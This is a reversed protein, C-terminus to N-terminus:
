LPLRMRLIERGEYGGAPVFFDRLASPTFAFVEDTLYFNGPRAFKQGLHFISNLSDAVLMGTEGKVRYVTNGIHLVIRYSVMANFGSEEISFVKRGLIMKFCSLVAECRRGDFPFLVIAGYDTWMWVRGGAPSISREVHRLFPEIPNSLNADGFVKKSEKLNDLEIFMFCFTYEQGPRIEKWDRGSPKYTTRSGAGEPGTEPADSKRFGAARRVRKETLGDRLTERCVYDCAGGHFLAGADRIANKPDIVAYRLGNNGSLMRLAKRLAVDDMRSVDLYVLSDPALGGLGKRLEGIKMFSVDCKGKRSLGSFAEIVSRTESFVIIEM